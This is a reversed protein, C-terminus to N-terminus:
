SNMLLKANEQWLTITKVSTGSISASLEEPNAALINIYKYNRKCM